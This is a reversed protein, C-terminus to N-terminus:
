PNSPSTTKYEIDEALKAYISECESESLSILPFLPNNVAQFKSLRIDRLFRSHKVILPMIETGENKYKDLIPPLEDNIIFESALFDASILLVAIRAHRLAEEIKYKWLDGTKIKTDDWLDIKKQKILPKLHVKIRDLYLVDNHSYSIFVRNKIIQEDGEKLHDNVILYDEAQIGLSRAKIRLSLDKSVLIVQRDSHQEMATIATNLILHDPTIEPFINSIKYDKGNEIFLKGGNRGIPIGKLRIESSISVREILESAKRANVNIIQDGRQFHGLEEIVSIPIMVDNGQFMSLATADYLLINTDLVFLKKKM